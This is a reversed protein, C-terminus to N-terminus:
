HSSIYIFSLTFFFILHMYDSSTFSQIPLLKTSVTSIIATLFIVGFLVISLGLIKGLVIQKKTIPKTFLIQLIGSKRERLISRHGIIIGLLAGILIIYVILNDFSALAPIAHFPNAPINTIGQNKVFIVSAKYVSDVTSFTSWSILTSMLAMFIFVGAISYVVKERFLSKIESLAITYITNM